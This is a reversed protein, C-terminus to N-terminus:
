KKNLLILSMKRKLSDLLIDDLLEIKKKKFLPQNFPEGKDKSRRKNVEVELNIDSIWEFCFEVPSDLSNTENANEGGFSLM